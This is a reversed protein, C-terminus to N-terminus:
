KKSLAIVLIFLVFIPIGLVYVNEMGISGVM